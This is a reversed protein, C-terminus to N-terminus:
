SANRKPELRKSYADTISLLVQDSLAMFDRCAEIAGETNFSVAKISDKAADMISNRFFTFAEVAQKLTV